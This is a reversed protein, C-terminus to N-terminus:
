TRLSRLIYRQKYAPMGALACGTPKLVIIYKQLWDIGLIVVFEDATDTM